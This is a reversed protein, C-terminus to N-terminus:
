KDLVFYLDFGGFCSPGTEGRDENHGANGAAGWALQENEPKHPTRSACQQLKPPEHPIDLCVPPETLACQKKEEGEVPQLVSRTTGSDLGKTGASYHHNQGNDLILGKASAAHHNKQGTNHVSVESCAAPHHGQGTDPVM